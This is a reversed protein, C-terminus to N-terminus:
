WPSAGIRLTLDGDLISDVSSGQLSVGDNNCDLVVVDCPIFESAAFFFLM